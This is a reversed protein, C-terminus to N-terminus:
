KGGYNKALGERMGKVRTDEDRVRQMQENQLNMQNAYYDKALGYGRNASYMNWLGSGLGALQGISKQQATNIGFIDGEKSTIGMDDFWDGLGGFMGQEKTGSGLNDYGSAISQSVEPTFYKSDVGELAQIYANQDPTGTSALAGIGYGRQANDLTSNGTYRSLSARPILSSTSSKVRNAIDANLATPGFPNERSYNEMFSSKIGDSISPLKIPNIGINDIGALNLANMGM